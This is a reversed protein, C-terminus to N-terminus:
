LAVRVLGRVSNGIYLAEAHEIDKITFPKEVVLEPYQQLLYKRFVGPLLGCSLPPTILRGDQQLFINNYSGETVEGKENSFLVEHYGNNDVVRSREDDYLDRRTSKHYLFVSNSDTNRRSFIVRPLDKRTKQQMIVAPEAGPSFKEDLESSTIELEGAKSLTLRVRQSKV